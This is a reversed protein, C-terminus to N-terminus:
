PTILLEPPSGSAQASSFTDYPTSSNLNKLVMTVVRRGAAREQLVYATVDWEYWRPTTSNNVMTVSALATAGTAPRSNWTISSESWSTNSAAFVSTGVTTSTTGSLGGFLRLRVNSAAPVGSTDFKLYTWRNNGSGGSQVQLSAASGFNRGKYSGDRVYADATPGLRTRVAVLVVGSTAVAGRDDTARATLAYKGAPVGTWDLRYPSATALGLSTSGQFFEVRAIAGDGDSAAATLTITAPETYVAGPGPGTLTVAPPANVVLAVPTSTVTAGADDWAVATLSYNGAAVASWTIAFPSATAQGIKTEGQFFEVRAISGDPDTAEAAVVIVAPALYLSRM